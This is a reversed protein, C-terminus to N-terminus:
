RCLQGYLSHVFLLTLLCHSYGPFPELSLSHCFLHSYKFSLIMVLSKVPCPFIHWGWLNSGKLPHPTSCKVNVRSIMILSNICCSPLFYIIAFYKCTVFTVLSNSAYNNHNKKLMVFQKPTFNLKFHCLNASYKKWCANNDEKRQWGIAYM